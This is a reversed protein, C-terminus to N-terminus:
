STLSETISVYPLVVWQYQKVSDALSNNRVILPKGPQRKTALSLLPDVVLRQQRVIHWTISNSDVGGALTVVQVKETNHM